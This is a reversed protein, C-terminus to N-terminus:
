LNGGGADSFVAMISDSKRWLKVGGWIFDLPNLMSFKVVPAKVPPPVPLAQSHRASSHWLPGWEAGQLLLQGALSLFFNEQRINAAQGPGPRSGLAPTTEMGTISEREYCACLEWTQPEAQVTQQLTSPFDAGEGDLGACCSLCDITLTEAQHSDDSGM